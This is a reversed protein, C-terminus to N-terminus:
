VEETRGDNPEYEANREHKANMKECFIDKDEHNLGDWIGRAFEIRKM